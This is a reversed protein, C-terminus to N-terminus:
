CIDGINLITRHGNAARTYVTRCVDCRYVDFHSKAARNRISPDLDEIATPGLLIQRDPKGGFCANNPCSYTESGPRAQRRDM